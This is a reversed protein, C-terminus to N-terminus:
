TDGTPSRRKGHIVEEHPFTAARVPATRRRIPCSASATYVFRDDIGRITAAPGAPVPPRGHQAPIANVAVQKSAVPVIAISFTHEHHQVRGASVVGLVVRSHPAAHCKRAAPSVAPELHHVQERQPCRVRVRKAVRSPRNAVAVVPIQRPRGPSRRQHDGCPAIFPPQSVPAALHQFHQQCRAHRRVGETHVCASLWHM